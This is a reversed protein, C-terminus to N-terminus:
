KVSEKRLLEILAKNISISRPIRDKWKEWIEAPIELLFKKVSKNKM